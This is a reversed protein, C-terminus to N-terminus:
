DTLEFLYGVGPLTHVFIPNGPDPEIKARLRSILGRVLEKSGSEGYGWVRDVIVDPPMVQGAHTILLYLLRFELQTLSRSPRDLVQVSRAAPNLTIKGLDILPLSTTVNSRSRRLLSQIYALLLKPGVPLHVILDAGAQLFSAERDEHVQEHMVVLFASSVRRLEGMAALPDDELRSKYLILDVPRETMDKLLVELSARFSVELGSRRLLYALYDNLENDAAVIVAQM